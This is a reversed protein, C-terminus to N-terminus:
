SLKIFVSIRNEVWVFIRETGAPRASGARIRGSVMQDQASTSIMPIHARLGTRLLPLVVLRVERTPLRDAGANGCRAHHGACGEHMRLGPRRDANKASALRVKGPRGTGKCGDIVIPDVVPLVYIPHMQASAGIPWPPVGIRIESKARGCGCGPCLMGETVASQM